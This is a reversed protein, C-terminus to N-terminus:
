PITKLHKKLLIKLSIDQLIHFVCGLYTELLGMAVQSYESTPIPYINDPKLILEQGGSLAFDMITQAYNHWSTSGSATLHYTGFVEQQQLPNEQCFQLVKYTIEAILCAPTPSGVQDEIVNLERKKTALDLITTM